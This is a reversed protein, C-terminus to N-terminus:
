LEGARRTAEIVAKIMSSRFGTEELVQMAACTTGAPSTVNNRLEAPHINSEQLMRAAGILTQVVLKSAVDRNLGVTVGADILTEAFLFVYAPGTGSLGTVADMLKEPVQITLGLPKLLAMVEEREEESANKGASMGIAGEGLLCPTNPMLRFVKSEPGLGKQLTTTTVGAAISTVLQGPTVLGKLMHLLGDIDQPKVAILLHRSFPVAEELSAAAKIGLERSLKLAREENRDYVWILSPNLDGKKTFGRALASGMAGCGILGIQELKM